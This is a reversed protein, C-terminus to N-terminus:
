VLNLTPLYSWKSSLFLVQNGWFNLLVVPSRIFFTDNVILFVSISTHKLPHICVTSYVLLLGVARHTM